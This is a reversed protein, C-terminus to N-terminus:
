RRWRPPDLGERRVWDKQWSWTGTINDLHFEHIVQGGLDRVRWVSGFDVVDFELFREDDATDAYRYDLGDAKLARIMELKDREYSFAGWSTM